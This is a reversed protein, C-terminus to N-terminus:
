NTVTPHYTTVAVRGVCQSCLSIITILMELRWHWINSAVPPTLVLVYIYINEM